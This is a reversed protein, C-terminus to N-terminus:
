PAPLPRAREAKAAARDQCAEEQPTCKRKGEDEIMGTQDGPQDQQRPVIWRM